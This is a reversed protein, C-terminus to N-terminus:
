AASIKLSISLRAVASLFKFFSFFGTFYTGVREKSDARKGGLLDKFM